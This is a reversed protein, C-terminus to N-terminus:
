RLDPARLHDWDPDTGRPAQKKRTTLWDAKDSLESSCPILLRVLLAYASSVESPQWIPFSKEVLHRLWRPRGSLGLVTKSQISLLM